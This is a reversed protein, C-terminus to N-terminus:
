KGNTTTTDITIVKPDSVLLTSEFRYDSKPDFILYVYIYLNFTRKIDSGINKIDYDVRKSSQNISFYQLMNEDSQDTELGWNADGAIVPPPNEPDLTTPNFCESDLESVLHSNNHNQINIKLSANHFDGVPSSSYITAPKDDVFSVKTYTIEAWSHLGGACIGGIGAGMILAASGWVISRKIWPKLKGHQNHIKIKVM